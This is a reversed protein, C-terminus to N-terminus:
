QYIQFCTRLTSEKFSNNMRTKEMDNPMIPVDYAVNISGYVLEVLVPDTISNVERGIMSILREKSIGDQRWRMIEFGLQSIVTCMENRMMSSSSSSRNNGKNYSGSSYPYNSSRAYPYNSSQSATTGQYYGTSCSVFILCASVLCFVRMFFHKIM